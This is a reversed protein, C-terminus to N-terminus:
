YPKGSNDLCGKWAACKEATKGDRCELQAKCCPDQSCVATSIREYEANSMRAPGGAGAPVKGAGTAAAKIEGCPPSMSSSDQTTYGYDGGLDSWAADGTAIQEPSMHVPTVNYYYHAGADLQCTWRRQADPVVGIQANVPGGYEAAGNLLPLAPSYSKGCGPGLPPGGPSSSIWGALLSNGCCNNFSLSGQKTMSQAAFRVALIERSEAFFGYRLWGGNPNLNSHNMAQRWSCFIKTRVPAANEASRVESKEATSSAGPKREATGQGIGAGQGGTTSADQGAQPAEGENDQAPAQFPSLLVLALLCAPRM